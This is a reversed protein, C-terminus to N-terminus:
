EDAVFAEFRESYDPHWRSLPERNEIIDQAAWLIRKEDLSRPVDNDPCLIYFDGRQLSEYMFDANQEPTWAGEPKQTRGNANLPTFVFGPILLHASIQCNITSRLEHQLAETFTKVGAKSINYAPDGPPSTIGQKSGTNIIMGPKGREIMGPVFAQCGNIVGWLNVDIVRQWNERDFIASGPQIGANNMVIDVIGFHALVVDELRKLDEFKSVDTAVALVQEEGNPASAAIQNAAAALKDDDLDALCVKIGAAAFRKASALGIGSAAGTIVAVNFKTLDHDPLRLEGNKRIRWDALKVLQRYLHLAPESPELEPDSVRDQFDVLNDDPM